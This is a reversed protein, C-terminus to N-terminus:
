IEIGEKTNLIAATDIDEYLNMNEETCNNSILKRLVISMAFNDRAIKNIESLTMTKNGAM